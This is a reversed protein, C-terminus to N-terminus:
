GRPSGISGTANNEVEAASATHFAVLGYGPKLFVLGFEPLAANFVQIQKSRRRAALGALIGVNVQIEIM